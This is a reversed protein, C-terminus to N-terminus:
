ALFIEFYSIHENVIYLSQAFTGTTKLGDPIQSTDWKVSITSGLKQDTNPETVVINDLAVVLSALLFVVLFSGLLKM